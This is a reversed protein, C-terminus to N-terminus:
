RGSGPGTTGESAIGSRHARWFVLLMCVGLIVLGWFERSLEVAGGKASMPEFMEQPSVWVPIALGLSVAWVAAAIAVALALWSVRWALISALAAASYMAIWSAPDPDNLQVAAGLAFLLALGWAWLPTRGKGRRQSSASM